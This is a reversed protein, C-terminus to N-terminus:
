LFCSDSGIVACCVNMKGLTGQREKWTSAETRNESKGEVRINEEVCQLKKRV